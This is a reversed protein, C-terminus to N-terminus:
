RYGRMRAGAKRAWSSAPASSRIFSARASAGRRIATLGWTSGPARFRPRVGIEPVRLVVAAGQGWARRAPVVKRMLAQPIEGFFSSRRSYRMQGHLMRNQACTLYLRRRARTLAVYMLRREEEIGDTETLSNEHPFLGEELGSIFVTHFELGKASHVTMLQLADAGADAQHEGAELAAHALFATVDDAEEAEGQAQSGRETVFAAAANVFESLNELRDAGEKENKYHQTLGSAEIVHEIVQQLPQGASAQRM